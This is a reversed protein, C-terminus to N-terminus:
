SESKKKGKKKNQKKKGKKTDSKKLTDTMDHNRKLAHFEESGPKIGLSKAFAGWGKKKRTKYKRLVRGTPISSLEGCRFVMYADAPNKVNKLVTDIEATRVKFRDALRERFNSHDARAKTNFDNMWGFDGAAAISVSLVVFGIVSFVILIKKMGMFNEKTNKNMDVAGHYGYKQEKSNNKVPM